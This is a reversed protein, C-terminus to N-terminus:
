LPPDAADDSRFGPLLCSARFAALLHQLDSRSMPGDAPRRTGSSRRSGRSRSIPRYRPSRRSALRRSRARAPQPCTPCIPSGTTPSTRRADIRSSATTHRTASAGRNPTRFSSWPWATACPPLTAPCIPLREACLTPWMSGPSSIRGASAAPDACMPPLECASTRDLFGHRGRRPACPRFPSTTSLPGEPRSSSKVERLGWAGRALREM